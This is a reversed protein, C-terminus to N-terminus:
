EEIFSFAREKLIQLAKPGDEPNEWWRVFGTQMGAFKPDKFITAIVLGNWYREKFRQFPHSRDPLNQSTINISMGRKIIYMRNYPIIIKRKIWYTQLEVRDDYFYYTGVKGLILVLFVPSSLLNICSAYFLLVNKLLNGTGAPWASNYDGTGMVPLIVGFISYLFVLVFLWIGSLGWKRSHRLIVLPTKSAPNLTEKNNKISAKRDVNQEM